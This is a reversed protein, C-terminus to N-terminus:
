FPGTRPIGLYRAQDDTLKSLNATLSPKGCNM